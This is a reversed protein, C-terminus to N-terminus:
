AGCDIVHADIDVPQGDLIGDFRGGGLHVSRAIM